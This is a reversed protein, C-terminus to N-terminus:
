APMFASDAPAQDEGELLGTPRERLLEGIEAAPVPRSYFFGQMQDCGRARLLAVQASTEVGEAVITLALSHGMSIIADTIARDGENTALERVFSRDVKLTDVPFRKLTSLSSYGTGFDDISVSIGRQKFAGLVEVAKRMDRMLVSETVEIELRRPDIGTAALVEDVDALLREDAFQRGSINVAMDLPMMGQRCWAVQQRCAERLVWLGIPVILGTEEAVPIFKAPSVLGLEPHRWRVLAEVGTMHGTAGDVKPQYFVEFQHRDIALRLSSEFALREMSHTNLDDVYFAFTNKGDEKAQYMAIDAHKMMSAEDDGDSPFTSIGISATVRFEHEHLHCPQSIASLLDRAREALAEPGEVDPVLVVFEDGGLRCVVDGERMVAAARRAIEKLLADGTAHGLTDNINKFRDLDLFMLAVHGDAARAQTIAAELLRSLQNRNPLGTLRDHFALHEAQLAAAKEREVEELLRAHTRQLDEAMGNFAHQLAGIEDRGDVELREGYNGAAMEDVGGQLRALRAAISNGFRLGSWAVLLVSLLGGGAIAFIRWLSAHLLDARVDTYEFVLAGLVDDDDQPGARVPVVVQAAMGADPGAARLERFARPVGDALTRAVEGGADGHYPQGKLAPDVAAVCQLQRDVIFLGRHHQLGVNEVYRQLSQSQTSAGYALSRAMASAQLLAVRDVEVVQMRTVALTFLLMVACMAAMGWLLKQRIGALKSTRM